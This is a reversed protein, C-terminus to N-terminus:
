SRSRFRARLRGSGPLRFWLWCAALLCLVGTGPEPVAAAVGGGRGATAGAAFSDALGALGAAAGQGAAHGTVPVFYRFTQLQQVSLPLGPAMDAPPLEIGQQVTLIAPRLAPTLFPVSELRTADNGMVFVQGDTTTVSTVVPQTQGEGQQVAPPEQGLLSKLASRAPVLFSLVGGNLLGALDPRIGPPQGSVPPPTQSVAPSAGPETQETGARSGAGPGSPLIVLSASAMAPFLALVLIAKIPVPM